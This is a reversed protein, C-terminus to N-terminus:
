LFYSIKWVTDPRQVPPREHDLTKVTRRIALSDMDLIKGLYEANIRSIFIFASACPIDSGDYPCFAALGIDYFKHAAQGEIRKDAVGVHVEFIPRQDVRIPPM